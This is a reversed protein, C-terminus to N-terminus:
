ETERLRQEAQARWPGDPPALELYRNYADVARQRDGDANRALYLEGLFFYPDAVTADMASAQLLVREAEDYRGLQTLGQGLKNVNSATPQADAARRWAGIADDDRGLRALVDGLLHLLPVDPQQMAAAATELAAAAEETRGLEMYRQALGFAAGTNSPEAAVQEELSELLPDLQVAPAADAAPPLELLAERKVRMISVGGADYVPELVAGQLATWKAIGGPYSIRELPGLYVYDVHYKRLLETARDADATNWLEQVDAIRQGVEHPPHQESAHTEEVVTPLGTNAAVRAGYHRYYEQSSTLVIPTGAINRKLWAIAEGDASLDVTQDEVNYSGGHMFRLGDLTPAQAHGFRTSVRSAIGAVPYVLGPLLSCIFIGLWIGQLLESRRLLRLILALAAAGGISWLAWIQFGFKFVTNMREWDSGALHDRVVVFQLGLAVLLGAALLWVGTWQGDRLRQASRPLISLCLGVAALLALVARLPWEVRSVPEGPAAASLLLAALLLPVGAAAARVLLRRGTGATRALAWIWVGYCSVILLLFPGFLLAYQQLTDTDRVAGIGGVPARYNLFFPAYLAVGLLPLAVALLVAKSVRGIRWWGSRGREARPVRSRAASGVLAGATVLAYTPADWSNAAGLAGITLAALALTSLPWRGRRALRAALGIALLTFPLAILHPHLDGYVFGFLPFENITWPIVRSPGWFWDGLREGFGALGGRAAALVPGIGRAESNPSAFASAPPGILLLLVALLGYRWRGTLQRGLALAASAALALLTALALNFGIAPDIGLARMPLAMLFLGYYYYNIPADSFFPDYPPMVPSRIIANLFGFELPKEGGFYPHWLDPNLARIATWVGFALVFCLESRLVAGRAMPAAGEPWPVGRLALGIAVLVIAGFALAWWNFVWWGLSVPLWVALGWILLGVLKSMAWGGDHWGSLARAAVPLGLLGLLEWLLLWLLVAPWERSNAWSNWAYEDIVPLEDVPQPLRQARDDPLRLAVPRLVWAPTGGATDVRLVRVNGDHYASELEGSAAMAELASGATDGYLAREGPGLVVLSAQYQQLARRALEADGGYVADIGRQRGNIVGEVAPMVAERERRARDPSALLAQLGSGAILEETEAGPAAVILEFGSSEAALARAAPAVASPLSPPTESLWLMGVGTVCVFVAGAMAARWVPQRWRASWRAGPRLMPTAWAGACVLLTVGLLYALSWDAALRGDLALASALLLAAGAAAVTFIAGSLRQHRDQNGAWAQAVLWACLGILVIAGGVPPVPVLLPVVLAGVLVAAVALRLPRRPDLSASAYVLVPVILPIALGWYWHEDAIPVAAAAPPEVSWGFLYGLLLGALLAPLLRAAWVRKNPLRWWGIAACAVWVALVVTIGSGRLFALALVLVGIVGLQRSGGNRLAGASALCSAALAAAGLTDLNSAAVERWLGFSDPDLVALLLPAVIATLPPWWSSTFRSRFVLSRAASWLGLAALAAATAVSLRLADSPPAGLLRELTAFPLSAAYALTDHGGAFFPDPAPLVPSRVLSLWRAGTQASVSGIRGALAWAAAFVAGYVVYGLVVERWRAGIYRRVARRERWWILLALMYLAVAWGGVVLRNAPLLATSALLAPGLALLLLGVMRGLAFGRDALPLRVRWLLAFGCLGALEVSLLWLLASWGAGWSSAFLYRTDTASVLEWARDTLQLARPARNLQVPRLGRYIEDWVVDGTLLARARDTSFAETRRFILVPPHDYVWFAEDASSDDIPIGFLSPQSRLEAALEFGLSGDFLAQYYRLTAPYRQPMREVSGYVRPSTLVVYDARALQYILGEEGGGDGIYKKPEEEAYPYTTIQNYRDQPLPLPDDWIEWTTVAGDPAANELWDAAVIRTYSRTYIRTYAWAWAWTALLVFILGGAVIPPRRLRDVLRLPSIGFPTAMAPVAMRRRHQWLELMGWAAFLILPPYIPLFYRMTTVFQQGQWTFYFAVWIWPILADWRRRALMVWGAVAWMIWAVMGLPLGMGWLVMNQLPFLWPTRNAWQISSPLDITGDATLRAQRLGEIFRPEPLINWFQPGQFADPQFVRFCVFCVLGCILLLGLSRLFSSRHVIFSSRPLKAVEDNMTGREANRLAQMVVAVLVLGVLAAMNIKSAVAAAIWVGSWVADSLRGYRGLRTVFLLALTGFCVAFNDVTFFHSQQIPMVAGAYLAAALLGVRRNYLTVGLAFLALLTVIDLGASLGRGIMQIDDAGSRGTREAILRTLTTPLTGYVYGRSWNFNRPNLTSCGSALSPEHEDRSSEPNRPAPMPYPCTSAFYDALREPVSLNVVTYTMFREDPHQDTGGDWDRLNLTRFWGGILVILLLFLATGVLRRLNLPEVRSPPPEAEWQSVPRDVHV